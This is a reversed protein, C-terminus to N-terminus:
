GLIFYLINSQSLRKAANGQKNFIKSRSKKWKKNSFYNNVDEILIKMVHTEDKGLIEDLDQLLVDREVSDFAKSMDLLMINMEYNLTTKAKEALIKLTFVNETTSRGSRYAAQSVSKVIYSIKIQETQQEILM